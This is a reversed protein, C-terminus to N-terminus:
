YNKGLKPLPIYYKKSKNIIWEYNRYDNIVDTIDTSGCNRCRMIKEKEAGHRKLDSEYFQHKGLGGFEAKM